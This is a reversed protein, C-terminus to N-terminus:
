LPHNGVDKRQRMCACVRSCARITELVSIKLVFEWFLIIYLTWTERLEVHMRHCRWAEESSQCYARRKESQHDHVKNNRCLVNLWLVIVLWLDLQCHPAWHNGKEKSGKLLVKSALLRRCIGVHLVSDGGTWLHKNGIQKEPHQSALRTAM